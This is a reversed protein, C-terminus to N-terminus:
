RSAPSGLVLAAGSRGEEGGALVSELDTGAEAREVADLLTLLTKEPESGCPWRSEDLGGQGLTARASDLAEALIEALAPAAELEPVEGSAFALVRAGPRAGRALADELTTLVLVAAVVVPPQSRDLAATAIPGFGEFGGAFAIRAHGTAVLDAAFAVAELASTPGNNLTINAGECSHQIAALGAAANMVTFPFLGPNVLVPGVARVEEIFCGVEDLAGALTGVVIAREAPAPLSGCGPHALARDIAMLLARAAPARESIQPLGDFPARAVHPEIARPVEIAGEVAAGYGTVVVPVPWSQSCIRSAPPDVSLEAAGPM